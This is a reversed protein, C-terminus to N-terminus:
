MYGPLAAILKDANVSLVEVTRSTSILEPAVPQCGRNPYDFEQSRDRSFDQLAGVGLEPILTQV